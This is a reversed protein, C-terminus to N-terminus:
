LLSVKSEQPPPPPAPPEENPPPPPPIGKSHESLPPPPPLAKDSPFSQVLGNDEKQKAREQKLKQLNQLHQKYWLQQKEQSSCKSFCIDSLACCACKRNLENVHKRYSGFHSHKLTVCVYKYFAQVFGSM